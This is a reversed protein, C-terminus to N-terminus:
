NVLTGRYGGTPLALGAASCGTDNAFIDGTGNIRMDAVVMGFCATGNSAKSVAGSLTVISNPLYVMGSINWTPSNGAASIDLNAGQDTLNPDQYLAMGSWAGSAPAAIDLTGGGSPIYNYASSNTGTFVVTLGSGSTT